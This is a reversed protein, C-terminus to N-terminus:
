DKLLSRSYQRGNEQWQFYYFGKELASLPLTLLKEDQGDGQLMQQGLSNYISWKGIGVESEITLLTQVPNPYIKTKRLFVPMVATALDARYFNNNSGYLWLNNENLVVIKNVPSGSALLSFTRGSDTTHRLYSTQQSNTVLYWEAASKLYFARLHNSNTFNQTTWNKGSDTTTALYGSRGGLVGYSASYMQLDNINDDIGAAQQWSNGQDFSYYLEDQYYVYLQQPGFRSLVPDFGRGGVATRGTWSDGGDNTKLFIISDVSGSNGGLLMCGQLSDAFNLSRIAKNVGVQLENWQSGNKTYRLRGGSNKGLYIRNSDVVAMATYTYAGGFQEQSITTWNGGADNTKLCYYSMIAFGQQPSTFTAQAIGGGYPMTSAIQFTQAWVAWPSLCLLLLLIRM